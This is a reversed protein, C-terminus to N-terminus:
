GSTLLSRNRQDEFVLSQFRQGEAADRVDLALSLITSTLAQQRRTSLGAGAATTSSSSSSAKSRSKATQKSSSAKKRQLKADSPHEVKVHRLSQFWFFSVGFYSSLCM